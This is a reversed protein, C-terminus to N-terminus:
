RRRTSRSRGDGADDNEGGQEVATRGIVTRYEGPDDPVDDAWAAPNAIKDALDSPPTETGYAPGFWNGSGPPYEVNAVLRNAKGQPPM